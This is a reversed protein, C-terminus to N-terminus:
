TELTFANTRHQVPYRMVVWGTRQGHTDYDLQLTPLGIDDVLGGLTSDAALRAYVRELLRDVALDATEGTTRAFCDIVIGTVWDVPAGQIAAERPNSAAHYVNVAEMTGEGVRRDNARLVVDCVPPNAQLAAVFAAVIESFASM